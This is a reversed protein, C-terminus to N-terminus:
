KETEEKIEESLVPYLDENKKKQFGSQLEEKLRDQIDVLCGLLIPNFVGCEGNLIMEIAKEHSFAKKYVRESVLADYVDAMAVVQAAIPIEEGKLGDPYGKGDYREHHWRCIQYAVQVLKENRFMELSDLMSAGILTHTKMIEFEEKTLKGPKNLIKEDIGIKGIDHLASATTIMFRDSWLLHYQDTKQMLRELLMGTITNIHLVHSGSEGNRFEVIQSLISVMMRNHKEKEQIQDTVLSILHRQKAYLKITNFVRQHVVQADFPRSIYDSAGMEYARRVYAAGDESSIMIVPTDEIWHNRNMLALVEFGDMVPMNIDLLILSIGTGYQKLLDICEEGNAAELIKYEEELIVALIERNMQSDDVILVQQKERGKVSDIGSKETVTMNKRNKAQYMLSYARGVASEVTENDALVGGISVSLHLQTYGPVEAEYVMDRIQKLKKSFVDESVDPLILLFEDGGYRILIDTKRICKRVIGVVTNLVMDGANHGCTDNYLKFDDLDIMAVGAHSKVKRIRDEYYRRNYAGTLADLYLEENYGRVKAVLAERANAESDAADGLVNLMEVVYPEGEIEVYRAIRQYVRSEVYELRKKQCRERFAKLSISNKDKELRRVAEIDLVKVETFIDELYAFMEKAQEKTLVANFKM